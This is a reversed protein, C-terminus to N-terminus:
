CRPATSSRPTWSRARPRQRAAGAARRPHRRPLADRRRRLRRAPEGPGAAPRRGPRDRAARRDGRRLHHRPRGHRGAPRGPGLRDDPRLGPAPQGGRLGAPRARAAGDGRAPLGRHLVDARAVLDLVVERAQPDKLDLCVNRRGRTLVDYAPPPWRCGRAARGTSACCTPASTPWCWRPSRRRGSGPWRWSGCAPWRGPGRRRRPRPEPPQSMRAYHCGHVPGASVGVSAAANLQEHGQRGELEEDVGVPTVDGPERVGQGARHVAVVHGLLRPGLRERGVGRQAGAAFRRPQSSM